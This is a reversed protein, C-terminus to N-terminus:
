FPNGKSFVKTLEEKIREKAVHAILHANNQISDRTAPTFDFLQTKKESPSKKEQQLLSANCVNVIRLARM